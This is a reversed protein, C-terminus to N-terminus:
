KRRLPSPVVVHHSTGDNRHKGGTVSAFWAAAAGLASGAATAFGMIVTQNAAWNQMEGSLEPGTSVDAATLSSAVAATLATAMAVIVTALGWSTVGHIGDRFEVEDPAADNMKMRMRGSIYGAAASASVSVLLIWLGAVIFNYSLTNDPRIADGVTLGASAGFQLLITSFAVAVIAGAWVPGWELYSSNGLYPPNALHPSNPSAASQGTINPNLNEAM